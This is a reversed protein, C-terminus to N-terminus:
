RPQHVHDALKILGISEIVPENSTNDFPGEGRAIESPSPLTLDPHRM